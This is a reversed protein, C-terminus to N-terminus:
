SDTRTATSDRISLIAVRVPGTVDPLTPRIGAIRCLLELDDMYNNEDDDFAEPNDIGMESLAETLIGPNTGAAWSSRNEEFEALVEGNRSVLFWTDANASRYSSVALTGCSLDPRSAGQWGRKEVLLVHPGLDIAAVVRDDFYDLNEADARRLLEAWTSISIQGEKAGFRQLAEDPDLDHIATVCYGDKMGLGTAMWAQSYDSERALADDATVPTVGHETDSTTPQRLFHSM